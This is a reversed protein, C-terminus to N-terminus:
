AGSGWKLGAKKAQLASRVQAETHSFHKKSTFVAHELSPHRLLPTIDGDLVNTDMFNLWKLNPMCEIFRVSVLSHTNMLEIKELAILSKLYESFDGVCKAGGEICLRKLSLLHLDTKELGQLERPRGFSLSQLIQPLRVDKTLRIASRWFSLDVLKPVLFPVLNDYEENSFGVFGLRTLKPYESALLVRKSWKISISELSTFGRLDVLDNLEDNCFYHKLENSHRAVPSLDVQKDLMVHLSTVRDFADLCDLNNLGPNEVCSIGIQTYCGSNWLEACEASKSADIYLTRNILSGSVVTETVRARGPLGVAISVMIQAGM